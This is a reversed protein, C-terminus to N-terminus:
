FLVNEGELKYVGKQLRANINTAALHMLVLNDTGLLEHVWPHTTMSPIQVVWTPLDEPCGQVPEALTFL